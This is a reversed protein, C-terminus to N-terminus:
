AGLLRQALLTRMDRRGDTVLLIHVTAAEILYIIRYPKFFVQRYDNHGMALLERPYSGRAPTTQLSDVVELVRALVYEAKTPSDHVAIYDRIDLLDQEADRSLRVEHHKTV